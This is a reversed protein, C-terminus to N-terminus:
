STSRRVKSIGCPFPGGPKPESGAKIQNEETLYFSSGTKIYEEAGYTIFEYETPDLPIDSKYVTLDLNSVLLNGSLPVIFDETSM